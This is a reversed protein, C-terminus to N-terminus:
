SLGDRPYIQSKKSTRRRMGTVFNRFVLNEIEPSLNGGVKRILFTKIRCINSLGIFRM